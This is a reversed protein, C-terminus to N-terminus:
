SKESVSVFQTLKERTQVFFVFQQSIKLFNQFNRSFNLLFISNKVIKPFTTAFFPGNQFLMMHRCFNKWKPPPFRERHEGQRRRHNLALRKFLFIKMKFELKM